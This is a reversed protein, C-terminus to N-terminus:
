WGYGGSYWGGYPWVGGYAGYYPSTGVYGSYGGYYPAGLSYGYTPYSYARYPNYHYRYTSHHGYSRYSGFGSSSYASRYPHRGFATAATLSLVAALVLLKLSRM